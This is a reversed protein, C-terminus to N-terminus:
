ACFTTIRPILYDRCYNDVFYNASNLVSQQYLHYLSGHDRIIMHELLDAAKVANILGTLSDGSFEPLALCNHNPIWPYSWQMAQPNQHAVLANFGAEASRWCKRGNGSLSVSIRARGQMQFIKEVPIRRYHPLYLLALPCRKGDSLLYDVDEPTLAPVTTGFTCFRNFLEGHLAPRSLSSYGWAMFIDIPRLDYSQRSDTVADRRKITFDLPIVPYKETNTFGTPLERVLKGVINLSKLAQELKLWEPGDGNIGSERYDLIVVPRNSAYIQACKQASFNFLNSYYLEVLIVDAHEPEVLRWQKNIEAILDPVSSMASLCAINLNSLHYSRM